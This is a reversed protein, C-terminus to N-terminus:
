LDAEVPLALGRDELLRTYENYVAEWVDERRFHELIRKRAADGHKRRLDPSMLYAATAQALANADRPPVLTGTVGDEIADVCGTVQTAVVPLRM